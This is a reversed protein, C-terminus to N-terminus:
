YFYWCIAICLRGDDDDFDSFNTRGQEDDPSENTGSTHSLNLSM